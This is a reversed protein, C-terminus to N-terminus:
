DLGDPGVPDCHRGPAFMGRCHPHHPIPFRSSDLSGKEPFYGATGLLHGHDGLLLLPQVIPFFYGINLVASILLVVLFVIEHAEMTGLCLYWKILFGNVPPIGAMGLAGVTFAGMTFPMQRGIGDMESINQVHTKVYIAGVHLLTHDEHLRSQRHPLYFISSLCLTNVQGVKLVHTISKATLTFQVAV